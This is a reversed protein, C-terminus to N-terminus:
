ESVQLMNYLMLQLAQTPRILYDGVKIVVDGGNVIKEIASRKVEYSLRESVRDGDNWTTRKAKGIVINKEEVMLILDNFKLFRWEKSISVLSVVFVGKRGKRDGEQYVYTIDVATKQESEKEKDVEAVGLLSTGVYGTKTEANYGNLFAGVNKLSPNTDSWIGSKRNTAAHAPRKTATQAIQMKVQIKGHM